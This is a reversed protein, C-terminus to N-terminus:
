EQVIVNDLTTLEPSTLVEFNIKKKQLISIIDWRYIRYFFEDWPDGSSREQRQHIITQKVAYQLFLLVHFFDTKSYKANDNTSFM